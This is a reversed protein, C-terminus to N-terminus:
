SFFEEDEALRAPLVVIFTRLTRLSGVRPVTIMNSPLSIQGNRGVLAAHVHHELGVRQESAACSFACLGVVERTV